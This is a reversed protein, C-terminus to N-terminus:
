RGEILDISTHLLAKMSRTLEQGQLKLIRAIAFVLRPNIIKANEEGDSKGVVPEVWGSLVSGKSKQAAIWEKVVPVDEDYPRATKDSWFASYPVIPIESWDPRVRLKLMFEGGNMGPLNLDLIILNPLYGSELKKLADEATKLLTIEAESYQLIEHLAHSSDPSDEVVMMKYSNM